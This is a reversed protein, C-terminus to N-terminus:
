VLTILSLILPVKLQRPSTYTNQGNWMEKILDAWATALEGNQGLPNTRNLENLYKNSLFYETLPSVNSMCQIASNMFCTNGLNSLGCLGPKSSSYRNSYDYSNTKSTSRTSISSPSPYQNIIVPPEPIISLSSSKSIDPWSNDDNQLYLFLVDVITYGISSLTKESYNDIESFNAPNLRMYLKIQKNDSINLIEKM